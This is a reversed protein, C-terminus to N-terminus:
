GIDHIFSGQFSDSSVSRYDVGCVDVISHVSNELDSRRCITEESLV